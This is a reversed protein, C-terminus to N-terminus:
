RKGSSLFEIINELHDNVNNIDGVHGWNIPREEDCPSPMSLVLFELKNLLEQAAIHGSVYADEASQKKTTTVPNMGQLFLQFSPVLGLYNDGQGAM